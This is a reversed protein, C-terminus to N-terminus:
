VACYTYFARVMGSDILIIGKLNVYKLFGMSQWGTRVWQSGAWGAGKFDVIAKWWVLVYKVIKLSKIMVDCVMSLNPSFIDTPWKWTWSRLALSNVWRTRCKRYGSFQDIAELRLVSLQTHSPECVSPPLERPSGNCWPALPFEFISGAQNEIEVIKMGKVKQYYVILIAYLRLVAQHLRGPHRLCVSARESNKAM